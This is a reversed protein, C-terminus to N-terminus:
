LTKPIKTTTICSLIRDASNKTLAIGNLNDCSEFVSLRFVILRPQFGPTQNPYVGVGRRKLLEPAAM